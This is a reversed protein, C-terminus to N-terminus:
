FRILADKGMKENWKAARAAKRFEETEYFADLEERTIIGDGDADISKTSCDPPLVDLLGLKELEDHEVVGDRDLDVDQCKLAGLERLTEKADKAFAASAVCLLTVTLLFLTLVRM